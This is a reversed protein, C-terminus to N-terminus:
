FVTMSERSTCLLVCLGMGKRRKNKKVSKKVLYFLLCLIVFHVNNSLIIPLYFDLM